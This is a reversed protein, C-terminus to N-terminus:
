RMIIQVPIGYQAEFHAMKMKAVDTVIARKKSGSGTFGKVDEVIFSENGDEDDKNYCFDAVFDYLFVKNVELPFKPQYALSHIDGNEQMAKLEQARLFEAKSDFQRVTPNKCRPCVSGTKLESGKKTIESFNCCECGTMRTAKVHGGSAIKRYAAM